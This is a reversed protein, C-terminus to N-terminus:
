ISDSLSQTSYITVSHSLATYRRQAVSHQTSDSPSQTNYVTVSHSLATYQRWAVSHQITDSLLKTSYVTVSHSVCVCMDCLLDVSSIYLFIHLSYLNLQFLYSKFLHTKLATSFAATSKIHRIECPLSNWVPTAHSFSCHGFTKSKM